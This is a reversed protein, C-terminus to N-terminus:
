ICFSFKTPLPCFGLRLALTRKLPMTTGNPARACPAQLQRKHHPLYSRVPHVKGLGM